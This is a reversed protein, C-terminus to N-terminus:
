RQQLPSALEDVSWGNRYRRPLNWVWAYDVGYRKLRVRHRWTALALLFVTPYGWFAITMYYARPLIDPGLPKALHGFLGCGLMSAQLIPWFRTSALAIAVMALFLALDIVAIGVDMAAYAGNQSARLAICVITLAGASFQAAAACREPAGGRIAAYGCAGVWMSQFVLAHASV